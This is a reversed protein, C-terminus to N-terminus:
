KIDFGFKNMRGRWVEGGGWVIWIYNEKDVVVSYDSKGKFAEPFLVLKKVESWTIGETSVYFADFKNGFAYFKDGYHIISPQSIYPCSYNVADDSSLPAKVATWQLGDLSFWPTLLNTEGDVNGMMFAKWIGTKTKYVTSSISNLPFLPSTNPLEDGTEEWGSLDSTTTCFFKKGDTDHRIGAIMTPFSEILAEVGKNSLATSESWSLGDASFL